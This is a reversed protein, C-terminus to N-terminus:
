VPAGRMDLMAGYKHCLCHQRLVAEKCSVDTHHIAGTGYLM